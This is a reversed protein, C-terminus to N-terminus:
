SPSNDPLSRNNEKKRERVYKLGTLAVSFALAVIVRRGIDAKEWSSAFDAPRGAVFNKIPEFFEGLLLGVLLITIFLLLAYGLAQKIGFPKKM